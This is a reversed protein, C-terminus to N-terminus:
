TVMKTKTKSTQNIPPTFRERNSLEHAPYITHHHQQHSPTATITTNETITIHQPSPTATTINRTPQHEQGVLDV